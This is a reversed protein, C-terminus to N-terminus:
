PVVYLKSVPDVKYKFSKRTGSLFGRAFSGGIPRRGLIFKSSLARAFWGLWNAYLRMASGDGLRMHKSLAAATGEGYAYILSSTEKGLPRVGLHELEVERANIVKLGAKLVRFILDPEGGSSLPAGAGLMPDFYGVARLLEKRLGMNATIGWDRDSPPFRHQWERVEPEFAAAFGTNWLHAPITVRGCVVAVEPDSAFVGAMQAAWGAPVRCDDDTFAVIEGQSLEIGRNRGNCVGRQDSQVYRLRPDHLAALAQQTSRDDSQDIVIIELLERNTLLTEVCAAAHAARNRTPLVASVRLRDPTRM